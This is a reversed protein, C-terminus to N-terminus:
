IHILSLILDPRIRHMQRAAQVFERVGKDSLVRGVFLFVPAGGEPLPMPTFRDLDVGSRSVRGYTPRLGVLGCFSAPQRM